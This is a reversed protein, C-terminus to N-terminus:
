GGAKAAWATANVGRALLWLALGTEALLTVGYAPAFGASLAPALFRLASGTLYVAGAAALLLGLSRPLYGSRFILAGTMLSAVGFFFLALDYGHSQTSLMLLALAEPDAPAPGTLAILAAQQNLLNAGLIATQVLRFVMAMLALTPGAPRLLVYLLVALGADSLGMAVDLGLSLRFLGERALISTATAAPDGPVILQARIGLEATLGAAIILLYLLGALRAEFQPTRSM